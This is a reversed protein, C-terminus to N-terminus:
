HPELSLSFSQTKPFLCTPKRPTSQMMLGLLEIRCFPVGVRITSVSVDSSVANKALCPHCSSYPCGDTPQARSEMAFPKGVKKIIDKESSVTGTYIDGHIVNVEVEKGSHVALGVDISGDVPQGLRISADRGVYRVLRTWDSM